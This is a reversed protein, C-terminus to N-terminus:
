AADEQRRSPACTARALARSLVRAHPDLGERLPQGRPAWGAATKFRTSDAYFGGIDIAKKEPPWEVM